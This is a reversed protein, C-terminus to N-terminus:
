QAAYGPIVTRCPASKADEYDTHMIVCYKYKPTILFDCFFSIISGPKIKAKLLKRQQYISLPPAM